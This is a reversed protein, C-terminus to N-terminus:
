LKMYHLGIKTLSLPNKTSSLESEARCPLYCDQCDNTKKFNRVDKLASVSVSNINCATLKGDPLIWMFSRGADCKGLKKDQVYKGLNDFYVPSNSLFKGYKERLEKIAM